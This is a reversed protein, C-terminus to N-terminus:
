NITKSIESNIELINSSVGRTKIMDDYLSLVTEDKETNRDRSIKRKDLQM